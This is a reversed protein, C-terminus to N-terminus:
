PMLSNSVPMLAMQFALGLDSTSPTTFNILHLAAGLCRLEKQVQGEKTSLMNDVFGGPSMLQHHPHSPDMMHAWDYLSLGTRSDNHKVPVLNTCVHWMLFGRIEVHTQNPCYPLSPHRQPVVRSVNPFGWKDM